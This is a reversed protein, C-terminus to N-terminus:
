IALPRRGQGKSKEIKGDELKLINESERLLTGPEKGSVEAIGRVKILEFGSGGKLESLHWSRQPAEWTRRVIRM